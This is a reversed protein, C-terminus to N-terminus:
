PAMGAPTIILADDIALRLTTLTAALMEHPVSLNIRIDRAGPYLCAWSRPTGGFLLHPNLKLRHYRGTTNVWAVLDDVTPVGRRLRALTSYGALPMPHHLELIGDGREALIQHAIRNHRAMGAWHDVMACCTKLSPIPEVGFRDFEARIWQYCTKLGGPERDAEALLLAALYLLNVLGLVPNISALDTFHKRRAAALLAASGSVLIGARLGPLCLDKAPTMLVASDALSTGVARRTAAIVADSTTDNRAQFVIDVVRFDGPPPSLLGGTVGNPVIDVVGARGTSAEILHRQDGDRYYGLVHGKHHVLNQEFAYYCPLPLWVGAGCEALFRMTIAIGETAGNTFVVQDGYVAVGLYRSLLVAALGRDHGDHVTGYESMRGRHVCVKTAATLFESVAPCFPYRNYGFGIQASDAPVGDRLRSYV